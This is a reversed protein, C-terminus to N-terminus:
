HSSWAQEELENALYCRDWTKTFDSPQVYEQIDIKVNWVILKTSINNGVTYICYGGREVTDVRPNHAAVSAESM